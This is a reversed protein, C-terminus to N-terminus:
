QTENSDQQLATNLHLVAHSFQRSQFYAKGFKAELGPTKPDKAAITQLLSSAEDPKGQVLLSEAQALSVQPTLLSSSQQAASLNVSVALLCIGLFASLFITRPSLDERWAYIWHRNRRNNM